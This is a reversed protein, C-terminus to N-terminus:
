HEEGAQAKPEGQLRRREAGGSRGLAGQWLRPREGAPLLYVEEDRKALSAMPLAPVGTEQAAALAANLQGRGGDVVLLDPLVKKEDLRRKFYRSMVEHVSAFDDQGEVTKLQFTRYEGRRPRGNEFWVLAGVTDRGQATSIDVCAIRRPVAGLGLDRGLAYVPDDAREAGEFTELRLTELLHRANQDALDVLRRGLGRSPVACHAEGFAEALEAEDAPAAPLYAVAARRERPLYYRVLFATLIDSEGM